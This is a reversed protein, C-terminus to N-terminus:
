WRNNINDDVIDWLKDYNKKVWEKPLQKGDRYVDTIEDLEYYGGYVMKTYNGYETDLSHYEPEEYHYEYEVEINYEQEEGNEDVEYWNIVMPFEPEWDPLGYAKLIRTYKM